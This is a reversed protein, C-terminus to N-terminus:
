AFQFHEADLAMLSTAGSEIGAALSRTRILLHDYYFEAVSIKAKYFDSDGQDQDLKESAAVAARAWFYALCVYGSLMLYNVAAGGMEEPDSKAKEAIDATVKRWQTVTEMLEDLIHKVRSHKSQQICFAKIQGIFYILAVGDNAIVKRGLLDNAQVGTTGEWITSIRADRYNQEVGWERIYGHGGFCQIAHSASELGAETGFAKGIPTLLDLMAQAHEREESDPHKHVKDLQFSMFYNFMRTGEAFAKQTLLMRRVDPHVIIPDAPGEPNKTGSLSRMQLREQAYALSKQFGLEAHATGQIATGIRAANMFTFMAMLGKNEKGLLYGKAGDFNMVCTPNGHMGMKEELSGCSVSNPAQAEDCNVKPVIFLSIGGTGQPAGKIRALVIHVINDTFDHDGTSIFIKSGTIAYSGDEQPEAATRLLGLDTGSHPETLCMTGTWEGEVLKRLYLNKQEDTGHAILTKMAGNAALNFIEWAISASCKMEVLVNGLSSPLGQGGFEQPISLTQWGAEVYQQFADKFGDPTIVKGCVLKCGQEDAPQNLPAVVNEAFKSFEDLVTDVFEPTADESNQLSQYHEQLNLVDHLAFRIDRLPAKYSTM